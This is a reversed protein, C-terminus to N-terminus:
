EVGFMRLCEERKFMRASDVANPQGARVDAGNEVMAKVIDDYGKFVAGAIPSQGRENLVNVDAHHELLMNVTELNGYYSALMLLTDGKHNTLNVPIGAEIYQKLEPTKGERAFDFLKSALDLAAPPLSSANSAGSPQADSASPQANTEPQQPLGM